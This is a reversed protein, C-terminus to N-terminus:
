WIGSVRELVGIQDAFHAEDHNGDAFLVAFECKVRVAVRKDFDAVKQNYDAFCFRDMVEDRFLSTGTVPDQSNADGLFTSKTTEATLIFENTETEIKLTPRLRVSFQSWVPILCLIKESGILGVGGMGFLVICCFRSEM